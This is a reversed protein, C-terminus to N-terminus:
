TGAVTCYCEIIDNLEIDIGGPFKEVADMGGGVGLVMTGLFMGKVKNTVTNRIRFIGSGATYYGYAKLVKQGRAVEYLNLTNISDKLTNYADNTCSLTFAYM